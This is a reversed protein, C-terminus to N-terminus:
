RINAFSAGRNLVHDSGSAANAAQNPVRENIEHASDTVISVIADPCERALTEVVQADTPNDFPSQDKEMSEVARLEVDLTRDHAPTLM